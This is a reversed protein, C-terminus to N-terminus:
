VNGSEATMLLRLLTSGELYKMLDDATGAFLTVEPYADGKDDGTYVLSTIKGNDRSEIQASSGPDILDDNMKQILRHVRQHANESAKRTAPSAM